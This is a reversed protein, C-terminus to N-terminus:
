VQINRHHADEHLNCAHVLDNLYETVKRMQYENNWNITDMNPAGYLWIFGHVHTSRHQWEYRCWYDKVNMGKQLIKKIFITHRLHIYQAIIHPNNIVNQKWWLQAEQPNTPQTGPM